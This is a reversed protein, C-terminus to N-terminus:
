FAEDMNVLEGQSTNIPFGCLSTQKSSVVDLQPPLSVAFTHSHCRVGPAKAPGSCLCRVECAAPVDWSLLQTDSSELCFM